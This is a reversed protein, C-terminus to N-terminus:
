HDSRRLLRVRELGTGQDLLVEWEGLTEERWRPYAAVGTMAGERISQFGMEHTLLYESDRWDKAFPTRIPRDIHLLGTTVTGQLPRSDSLLPTGEPVHTEVGKIVAIFSNVREGYEDMRAKAQIGSGVVLIATIVVATHWGHDWTSVTAVLFGIAVFLLFLMPLLYRGHKMELSMAWVFWVMMFVFLWRGVAGGRQWLVISGGIALVSQLLGLNLFLITPYYALKPRTIAGTMPDQVFAPWGNM